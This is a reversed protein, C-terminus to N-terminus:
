KLKLYKFFRYLKIAIQGLPFIINSIFSFVKPSSKAFKVILNGKVHINQIINKEKNSLNDYFFFYNRLGIYAMMESIRQVEAKVNKNSNAFITHLM